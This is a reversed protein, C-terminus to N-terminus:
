HYRSNNGTTTDPAQWGLADYLWAAYGQMDVQGVENGTQRRWDPLRQIFSEVQERTVRGLRADHDQYNNRKTGDANEIRRDGNQVTRLTPNRADHLIPNSIIADDLSDSFQLNAARAQWLMWNLSVDSLDGRSISQGNEDIVIGGGIDAHAGIFPAEVSNLAHNQGVVMLPFLWRHEHLAIAHAVWQWSDDITMNFEDNRSGGIGFQAVTDFLGLFRLDVCASVLGRLPDHFSFQNNLTYQSVQNAFHRAMASGRSYGLIDIPRMDNPSLTANGLGSLLNQWQRNIIDPASYATLADWDTEYPNGPGSQYFVPGGEYRQALKWVNSKTQANNRTGDFAFLMLGLPDIYRRPQQRAYGLADGGPFPGLPDPELYHGSQPDYTRHLNDHWGTDPDAHQGPLRLNLSLREVKVNALGTPSYSALWMIEQNADTVLRPAGLLDSQIFYLRGQPYRHSYQIFGVPTHHVYLYRRSLLPQLSHANNSSREAVRQGDLYWFAQTPTTDRGSRYRKILRGFADHQYHIHHTALVTKLRRDAGYRLPTQNIQTPLGSPDRQIRHNQTGGARKHASLAGSDQWAYWHTQRHHLAGAADGTMHLAGILRQKQDHQYRRHHIEAGAIDEEVVQGQANLRYTQQWVVPRNGNAAAARLSQRAFGPGITTTAQLGNGYRYGATQNPVPPAQVVVYRRGQASEWVLRQLQTGRWTYHLNGGEPLAHRIRQNQENYAFRSRLILAAGQGPRTSEQSILRGQLDYEFQLTENPHRVHTLLNGRWQLATTVRKNGPSSSIINVPRGAGDYHYHWVDGNAFVRRSPLGNPTRNLVTNGTLLSYWRQLQGKRNFHLQLNPWGSQRSNLQRIQGQPKRFIHLGNIQKLEGYRTYQARTGPAACGPCPDGSVAHLRPRGNVWRFLFRTHHGNAQQVNTVGTRRPVAVSEYQFTLYQTHTKAPSLHHLALLKVRGNHDLTWHRWPKFLTNPAQKKDIGVLGGSHPPSHLAYHYRHATRDPLIAQRLRPIRQYGALTYLYRLTGTPMQMASLRPQGELFRYQLTIKRGNLVLTHALGYLAQGKELHRLVHLEVHANRLRILQGNLNFALTQGSLGQWTWGEDTQELKGHPSTYASHTDRRTFHTRSADAHLITAHHASLSLRTEWDMSWAPGLISGPGQNNAHYHRRFPGDREFHIKHGTALHVPNGAGSNLSPETHVASTLGGPLCPADTGPRMCQSQATVRPTFVTLTLLLTTIAAAFRAGKLQTIGHSPTQRGKM